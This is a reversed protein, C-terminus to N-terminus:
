TYGKDRIGLKMEEERRHGEFARVCNWAGKEKGKKLSKANQCLNGSVLIFIEQTCSLPKM